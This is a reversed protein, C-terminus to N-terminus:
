DWGPAGVRGEVGWTNHALSRTGVGGEEATKWKSECKLGELLQSHTLNLLSESGLEGILKVSSWWVYSEHLNNHLWPTFVFHNEEPLAWPWSPLLQHDLTCGELRGNNQIPNQEHHYTSDVLGHTNKNQVAPSCTYQSWFLISIVWRAFFLQITVGQPLAWSMIKRIIPLDM